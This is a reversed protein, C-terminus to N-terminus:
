IRPTEKRSPHTNYSHQAVVERPKDTLCKVANDYQSDSFASIADKSSATDVLSQNLYEM